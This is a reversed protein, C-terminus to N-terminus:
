FTMGTENCRDMTIDSGNGGESTGFREAVIRAGSRADVDDTVWECISKVISSPKGGM